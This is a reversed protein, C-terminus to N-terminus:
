IRDLNGDITAEGTVVRALTLSLQGAHHGSLFAIGTLKPSDPLLEHQYSVDIEDFQSLELVNVHHM